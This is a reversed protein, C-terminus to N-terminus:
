CPLLAVERYAPMVYYSVTTIQGFAVISSLVQGYVAGFTFLVALLSLVLADQNVAATPKRTAVARCALAVVGTFGAALLFVYLRILEPRPLLFSWGSTWLNGKIFIGYIVTRVHEFRAQNLVDLLGKGKAANIISDQSAFPVGYHLLNQIMVASASQTTANSDRYHLASIRASCPFISTLHTM